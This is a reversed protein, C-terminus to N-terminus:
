ERAVLGEGAPILKKAKAAVLTEAKREQRTKTSTGSWAARDAKRSGGEGAAILEGAKAVQLTEAKRQVRTKTSPTTPLPDPRVGEGAPQLQHQAAAAKAAAKVEARSVGATQAVAGAALALLFSGVLLTRQTPRENRNM